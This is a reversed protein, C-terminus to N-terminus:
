NAMLEGAHHSEDASELASQHASEDALRTATAGAPQGVGHSLGVASRFDFSSRRSAPRVNAHRDETDCADQTAISEDKDFGSLEMSSASQHLVGNQTSSTVPAYKMQLAKLAAAAQDLSELGSLPASTASQDTAATNADSTSPSLRRLASVVSGSSVDSSAAQSPLKPVAKVGPSLSFDQDPLGM